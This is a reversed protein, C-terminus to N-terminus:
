SFRFFMDYQKDIRIKTVFYFDKGIMANINKSISLMDFKFGELFFEDCGKQVAPLFSNEYWSYQSYLEKPYIPNLTQTSM